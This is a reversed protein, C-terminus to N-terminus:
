PLERFAELTAEMQTFAKEEVATYKSVFNNTGGTSIAYFIGKMDGWNYMTGLDYRLGSFILDFMLPSQEDYMYKTKSSDEYYKPMVDYKSSACIAELMFSAFDVDKASSPITLMLVGVPDPTAIYQAQKEDYKPFPLVGYDVESNASIDKLGHPFGVLFLLNGDYFMYTSTYWYDYTVKGSFQECYYSISKDNLLSLVKDVSSITHDNNITLLPVDKNDKTVIFNDLGNVFTFFANGSDLGIGWRDKDTMVGDGDIDDSVATALGLMKEVTWTNDYVFDYFTGLEFDKAMDKNYMMIYTRQKEIMNFDGTTYYLRGEVSVAKNVDQRWWPKSFDLYKLSYLDYFNGNAALPGADIMKIFALSYLDDGALVSKTLNIATDEFVAQEIVCNYREELRSNREYVADNVIEGNMSEVSIEFNSFQPYAPVERGLVRYVAGNFNMAPLDPEIRGTTTESPDNETNNATTEKNASNGNSACASFILVCLLIISLIKLLKM